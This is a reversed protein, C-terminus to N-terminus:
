VAYSSKNYEEDNIALLYNCWRSEQPFANKVNNMAQVNM